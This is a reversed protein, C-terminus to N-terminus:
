KLWTSTIRGDADYDVQMQKDHDRALVFDEWFAPDLTDERVRFKGQANEWWIYKFTKEGERGVGSKLDGPEILFKGAQDPDFDSWAGGDQQTQIQNTSEPLPPVPVPQAGIGSVWLCMVALFGAVSAPRIFANSGIM